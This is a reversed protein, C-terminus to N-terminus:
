PKLQARSCNMMEVFDVVNDYRSVDAETRRLRSHNRSTTGPDLLDKFKGILDDWNMPRKASGIPYDIRKSYTKGAARVSVIAPFGGTEEHFQTLADDAVIEVRAMLRLVEKDFIAPEEFDSPSIKVGRFITAAVSYPLSFRAAMHNRIQRTVLTTSSDSKVRVTVQEVMEQSINGDELIEQTAEMATHVGYCSAFKKLAVSKLNATPASPALLRLEGGHAHSAMIGRDGTVVRDSATMGARSHDASNVALQAALGNVWDKDMCFSGDSPSLSPMLGNPSCAGALGIANLIKAKDLDMLKACAAAAGLPAAISSTRFGRGDARHMRGIARLVAITVELGAALACVLEKGSRREREAVAVAAPVITVAAHGNNRPDVIVDQYDLIEAWTGNCLAAQDASLKGRGSWLTSTGSGSANELAHKEVIKGSIHDQRIAGVSIAINDFIIKALHSRSWEDLEDWSLGSVYDALEHEPPHAQNQLDM